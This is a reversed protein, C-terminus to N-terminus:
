NEVADKFAFYAVYQTIWVDVIVTQTNAVFGDDVTKIIGEYRCLSSPDASAGAVGATALFQGAATDDMHMRPRIYKKVMSSVSKTDKDADWGQLFVTQLGRDRAQTITTAQDSTHYVDAFARIDDTAPNGGTDQRIRWWVKAGLVCYSKYIGILVDRGPAQTVNSDNFPDFTSNIKLDFMANQAAGDGTFTIQKYVRQKCYHVPNLGSNYGLSNTITSLCPKNLIRNLMGISLGKRSKGYKRSFKKKPKVRRFYGRRGKSRRKTTVVKVSTIQGLKRKKGYRKSEMKTSTMFFFFILSQFM